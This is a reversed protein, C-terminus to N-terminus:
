SCVVTSIPYKQIVSDKTILLLDECKAQAILMRDFPDQHIMPLDMIALAHQAEISLIRMSETRLIEIFNHPIELRKLSHKISLEWLSVVSIFVENDTDAILQYVKKGLQRPETLWWLITCSDLLLKM